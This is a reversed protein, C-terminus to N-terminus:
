ASPTTQGLSKNSKSTAWKDMSMTKSIAVGSIGVMVYRGLFIIKHESSRLMFLIGSVM